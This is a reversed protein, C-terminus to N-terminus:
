VEPFQAQVARFASRSGQFPDGFLVATWGLKVTADKVGIAAGTVESFWLSFVSDLAHVCAANGALMARHRMSLADAMMKLGKTLGNLM